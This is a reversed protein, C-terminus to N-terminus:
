RRDPSPYAPPGLRSANAAHGSVARTPLTGSVARTPLTGSVTPHEDVFDHGYSHRFKGLAEILPFNIPFWIPCRWNSNGRFIPTTSDAPEYAIEHRQGAMELVVPRDQHYKSV